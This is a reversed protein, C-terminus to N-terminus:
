PGAIVKYPVKIYSLNGAIDISEIIYTNNGVQALPTTTPITQTVVGSNAVGSNAVSGKFYSDGCWDVGSGADTCYFSVTVIEGYTYVPVASGGPTVTLGKIAPATTDVNVAVPYFNTTWSNSVEQFNLERTGSCDQAYYHLVYSGDSPVTLTQVAPVFDLPTASGPNALTPIPCTSNLLTTDAAIPLDAPVPVSTSPTLGYSVSQIPAPVFGAAGPVPKGGVTPTSGLNPPASDLSITITHSNVWGHHLPGVTATTLPMPVQAVSIFTSNPHTTEGSGGFTGPGTFSTLLNQPCPLDLNAAPDFACPGGTGGNWNWPTTSEAGWGESAMLLGLGTHFVKGGTAKIDLLQFPPGDFIDKVVENAVSSVPCQAGTATNGTGTTCELTYLKCAPLTAPSGAPGGVEGTHILCQSTAFPTGAGFNSQFMAPNVPLDGVQPTSEGSNSTLTGVAGSLDYIFGVVQGTSGNFSFTQTQQPPTPTTGITNGTILAPGTVGGLTCNTTLFVTSNTFEVGEDTLAFTVSQEGPVLQGNTGGIQIPAVGGSADITQSSGYPVFTDPDQGLVATASGYNGYGSAVYCNQKYLAPAGTQATGGTCINVPAGASGPIPQVTLVINNDVLLKGGPQLAGDSLAPGGGGLVMLPGSISATIGTAPCTLNVTKTNFSNPTSYSSGTQSLRVDVPGFLQTSNQAM